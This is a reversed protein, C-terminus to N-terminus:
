LQKSDQHILFYKFLYESFLKWLQNLVHGILAVLQVHYGELPEDSQEEVTKFVLCLLEHHTGEEDFPWFDYNRYGQKDHLM